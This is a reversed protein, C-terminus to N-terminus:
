AGLASQALRWSTFKYAQRQAWSELHFFKGLLHRTEERVLNQYLARTSLRYYDKPALASFPMAGHWHTHIANFALALDVRQLKRTREVLISVRQWVSLSEQQNYREYARRFVNFHRLHDDAIRKLLDALRADDVNEALSRYVISAQAEMGCRALSEKAASLPKEEQPLRLAFQTAFEVYASDWDFNPWTQRIYSRIWNGHGVEEAHWTNWLWSRLAEDDHYLRALNQVFAPTMCELFSLITLRYFAVRQYSQSAPQSASKM